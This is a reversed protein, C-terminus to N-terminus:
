GNQVAKQELKFAESTTKLLNERVDNLLFQITFILNAENDRTTGLEGTAEYCHAMLDVVSQAQELSLYTQKATDFLKSNRM